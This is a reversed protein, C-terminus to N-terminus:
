KCVVAFVVNQHLIGYIKKGIQSRSMSNENEMNEPRTNRRDKSREGEHINRYCWELEIKTKIDITTWESGDEM